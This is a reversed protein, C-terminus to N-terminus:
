VTTVPSVGSLMAARSLDGQGIQLGGIRANWFGGHVETGDARVQMELQM